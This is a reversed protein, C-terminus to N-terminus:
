TDISVDDWSTGKNIIWNIAKHRESYVGESHDNLQGIKKRKSVWHLRYILDAEKYLEVKDILKASNIFESPDRKVPLAQAQKDEDCRKLPDIKNWLGISWGLVEISETVWSANIKDQNSLFWKSFLRREKPSLFQQLDFAKLSEKLLKRKVNFSIPVIYSLVMMRRAIDKPEQFSLSSLPEIEPLDIKLKIGLKKISDESLSKLELATVNLIEAM